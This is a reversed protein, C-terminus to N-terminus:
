THSRQADLAQLQTALAQTDEYLRDEVIRGWRLRLFQMGQNHYQQGDPLAARVSFRTAASTNWPWGSVIVDHIEFHLGPFYSYLREFWGRVDAISNYEGSLPHTGAFSFHVRPAFRQLAAEYNGQSMQQFTQRIQQRVIMWYM